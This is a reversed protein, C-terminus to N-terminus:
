PLSEKRETFEARLHRALSRLVQANYTSSSGNTLLKEREEALQELIAGFEPGIHEAICNRVDIAFSPCRGATSVAIELDGRQLIAPFICTGTAPSDAVSVLIGRQRADAAVQQNVAVDNTAAIVLFANELDTEAYRGFRVNVGGSEKLSIIESCVTLAAMRVLAGAALLTRLKRLAVSGGGIIVALKGDMQINLALTTM